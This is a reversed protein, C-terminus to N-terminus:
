RKWKVTQRGLLLGGFGWFVAINVVLFHRLLALPRPTSESMKEWLIGLLAFAILIIEGTMLWPYLHSILLLVFHILGTLAAAWRLIKHSVIFFGWRSVLLGPFKSLTQIGGAIIRSKRHFEEFTSHTSQEYAVAKNVQVLKKNKQLLSCTIYFDDAIIDLPPLTVDEKRLVYFTGPIVITGGLNTELTRLKTEYDSYTSEGLTSTSGAVLSLVGGAAGTGPEFLAAVLWKLSDIRFLASVDSFCIIDGQAEALGAKLAAPKGQRKPLLITKLEPYDALIANTKDTSGDSVVIIELDPYDLALSNNLKERLFQEENYATILLTVRPWNQPWNPFPKPKGLLKLLLPYFLYPYLFLALSLWIAIKM